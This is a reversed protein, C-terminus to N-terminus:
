NGDTHDVLSKNNPNPIFAIAILRHHKFNKKIHKKQTIPNELQLSHM